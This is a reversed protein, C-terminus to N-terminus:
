RGNSQGGIQASEKLRNAKSKWIGAQRRVGNIESRHERKINVVVNEKSAVEARLDANEQKLAEIQAHMQNVRDAVKRYGTAGDDVAIRLASLLRMYDPTVISGTMIKNDAEDIIKKYTEINM